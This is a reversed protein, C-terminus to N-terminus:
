TAGRQLLRRLSVDYREVFHQDQDVALIPFWQRVRLTM